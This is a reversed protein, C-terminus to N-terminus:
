FHKPQQHHKTLYRICGETSSDYKRWDYPYTDIRLYPHHHIHFLALHV